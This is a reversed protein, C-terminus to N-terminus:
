VSFSEGCGCTNKVNPNHFEFGANLGDRRYDVETGNVLTLTKADVVLQVGHSDFVSDDTEASAAPEVVYAYGSCGTPKVRLRLYAGDSAKALYTKVHEAARATLSVSMLM